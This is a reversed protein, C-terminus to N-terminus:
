TSWLDYSNSSSTLQVTYCHRLYTQEQNYFQISLDFLSIWWARGEHVVSELALGFSSLSLLGRFIGNVAIVFSIFVTFKVWEQMYTNHNKSYHYPMYIQWKWFIHSYAKYVRIRKISEKTSVQYFKFVVHSQFEVATGSQDRKYLTCTNRSPYNLFLVLKPPNDNYPFVRSAM